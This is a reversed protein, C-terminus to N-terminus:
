MGLVGSLGLRTAIGADRDLRRSRGGRSHPANRTKSTPADGGQKATGAWAPRRPDLEGAASAQPNRRTAPAHQRHRRPNPPAKRPNTPWIAAVVDDADFSSEGDHPESPFRGKSGPSPPGRSIRVLKVILWLGFMLGVAGLGLVTPGLAAVDEASGGVDFFYYALGGCYVVAVLAGIAGLVSKTQM